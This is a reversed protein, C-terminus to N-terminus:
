PSLHSLKLYAFRTATSKFSQRGAIVFPDIKKCGFTRNRSASRGFCLQTSIEGSLILSRDTSGLISFLPYREEIESPTTAHSPKTASASISRIPCCNQWIGNQSLPTRRPTAAIDHWASRVKEQCARMDGKRRPHM